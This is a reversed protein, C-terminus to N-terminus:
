SNIYMCSMSICMIEKCHILDVNNVCAPLHVQSRIKLLLKNQIAEVITEITEAIIEWVLSAEVLWFALVLSAVLLSHELFAPLELGAVDTAEVPAELPLLLPM